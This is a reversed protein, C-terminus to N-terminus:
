NEANYLGYLDFPARRVDHFIADTEKIDSSFWMLKDPNHQESM